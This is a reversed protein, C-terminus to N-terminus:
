YKGDLYIHVELELVLPKALWVIIASPPASLTPATIGDRQPEGTDPFGQFHLCCKGVCMASFHLPKDQNEQM